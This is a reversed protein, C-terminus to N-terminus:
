EDTGRDPGHDEQQRGSSAAEPHSEDDDGGHEPWKEGNFRRRQSSRSSRVLYGRIMRFPRNDLGLIQERDAASGSHSVASVHSKLIETQAPPLTITARKDHPKDNNAVNSLLAGLLACARVVECAFSLVCRM